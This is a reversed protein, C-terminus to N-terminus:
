QKTLRMWIKEAESNGSAEFWEYVDKGDDGQRSECANESVVAGSAGDILVLRPVSQIDYKTGLQGQKMGAERKAKRVFGVGQKEVTGQSVDFPVAPWSMKSHYDVFQEEDNCASLFLVEFDSPNEAKARSYLDALVPTFRKCPGCWGASFYLGVLKKDGIVEQTPKVGEKTIVKGGFFEHWPGHQKKLPAPGDVLCGNEFFHVGSPEM